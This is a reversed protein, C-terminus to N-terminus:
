RPSFFYVCVCFSDFSLVVSSGGSALLRQDAVLSREAELQLRKAEALRCAAELQETSRAAETLRCTAELQETSRAAQLQETSRNAEALLRQERLRETVPSTTLSWPCRQM